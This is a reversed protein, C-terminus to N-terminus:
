KMQYKQFFEWIIDTAKLKDSTKGVLSEPLLEKGGPWCHGLGEVTYFVVESDDSGEPYRIAKVGDKDYIVETDMSCGIAQAWRVVEDYIPPKIDTRGLVNVVGGDPPNLPDSLGIIFIMPVPRSLKVEEPWLHGSVPAIAAFRHALNMGSYYTMSAGNSFGTAYIRRTDINFKTGLDDLMADIFGIDNINKSGSDFRGSGENWTQPNNRFSYPEDMKPRTGDPFVALFGAEDAKLHFETTVIAANANGGGGHFVVVLPLPKTADYSPPAHLVYTRDLNDVKISFTYDGPKTIVPKNTSMQGDGTTNPETGSVLEGSTDTIGTQRSCTFSPKSIAPPEIVPVVEEEETAGNEDLPAIEQEETAGNEDPPAVEQKEPVTVVQEDEDPMVLEAEDTILPACSVFFLTGVVLCSLLVWVAQRRERNRISTYHRM